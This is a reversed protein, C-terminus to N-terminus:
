ESEDSSSSTRRSKKFELDLQKKESLRSLAKNLRLCVTSNLAETSSEDRVENIGGTVLGLASVSRQDPSRDHQFVVSGSDGQASFPHDPSDISSVLFMESRNAFLKYYFESSMIRGDSLNTTAGKKHVVANAPIPGEYINVNCPNELRNLFTTDCNRQKDKDIQFVAFDHFPETDSYLCEGFKSLEKTQPSMIYVIQKEHALAHHCTLGYVEDQGHSDKLLAGATAYSAKSNDCNKDLYVKDGQKVYRHINMEGSVIHLSMINFFEPSLKYLESNLQEINEDNGIFVRFESREWIGFGHIGSRQFLFEKITEPIQIEDRSNGEPSMQSLISRCENWVEPMEEKRISGRNFEELFGQIIKKLPIELLSNLAERVCKKKRYLLPYKSEATAKTPRITQNLVIFAKTWVAPRISDILEEITSLYENESQFYILASVSWQGERLSYKVPEDKMSTILKETEETIEGALYLQVREAGKLACTPSSRLAKLRKELGCVLEYHYYLRPFSNIKYWKENYLSRYGESKSKKNRDNGVNKNRKDLADSLTKSIQLKTQTAPAVETESGFTFNCTYSCIM